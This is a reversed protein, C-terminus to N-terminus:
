YFSFFSVGVILGGGALIKNRLSTTEEDVRASIAEKDVGAPWGAKTTYVKGIGECLLVMRLRLPKGRVMTLSPTGDTGNDRVRTLSLPGTLGRM